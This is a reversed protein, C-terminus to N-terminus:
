CTAISASRFSRGTERSGLLAEACPRIVEDAASRHVRAVAAADLVGHASAADACVGPRSETAVASGDALGREIEIRAIAALHPHERLLWQVVKWALAAHASEDEAIRVLSSRV